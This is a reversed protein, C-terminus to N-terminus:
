LLVGASRFGSKKWMEQLTAGKYLSAATQMGQM